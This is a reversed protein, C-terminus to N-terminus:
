DEGDPYDWDTDEYYKFVGSEAYGCKNCIFLKKDFCKRPFNNTKIANRLHAIDYILDDKMQETFELIKEVGLRPNIYKLYKVEGYNITNDYILKYFSLQRTISPKHFSAGTKYEVTCLAGKHYDMRDLTGYLGMIPDELYIERHVPLFESYNFNCEIFRNTENKIFWTAMNKEYTCFNKPALEIWRECPLAQCVDFFWFAFDHFRTGTSMVYNDEVESGDMYVKKFQQPCFFYGELM